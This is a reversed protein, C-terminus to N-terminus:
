CGNLTLALVSAPILDCALFNNPTVLNSNADVNTSASLHNDVDV